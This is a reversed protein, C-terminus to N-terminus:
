FNLFEKLADGPKGTKMFNEGVLFGQFGASRLEKMKLPDSIGSESIRVFEAPIKEVLDFSTQLDTKFTSLNRNNIGVVDVYDNIYDLEEESHIELLVELGIEKAAYSLSKSQDKTLVAAILLVVDAGTVKAQYLQYVDIIFDKRLLPLATMSRAMKLDKLSGGFFPEDTLISLATAGSNAYAPVVEEVRAHEYMWDKSPSKRKFEAIIGTSSQSLAKKLSVADRCEKLFEELQSISVAEKHRSVEVRKLSIIQELINTM